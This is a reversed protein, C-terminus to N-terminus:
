PLETFKCVNHSVGLFSPKRGAGRADHRTCESREAKLADLENRYDNILKHSVELEKRLSQCESELKQSDMPSEANLERLKNQLLRGNEMLRKNEDELDRIYERDAPPANDLNRFRFILQGNGNREWIDQLSIKGDPRTHTAIIRGTKEGYATEESLSVVYGKLRISEYTEKEFGELRKFENKQM